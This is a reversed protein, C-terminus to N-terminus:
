KHHKHFDRHLNKKILENAEVMDKKIQGIETEIEHIEDAAKKTQESMGTVQKLGVFFLIIFIGILIFILTIDFPM